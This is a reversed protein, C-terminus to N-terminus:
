STLKGRPITGRRIVTQTACAEAQTGDILRLEFEV